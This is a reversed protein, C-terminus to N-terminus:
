LIRGVVLFQLGLLFLLLELILVLDVPDDALVILSDALLQLLEALVHLSGLIGRFLQPVINPLYALVVILCEILDAAVSLIFDIFDVLLVHGILRLHLVHRELRLGFELKGLIFMLVELTINFFELSILLLLANLNGSLSLYKPRKLLLDTVLGGLDGGLILQYTVSLFLDILQLLLRLLEFLELKHEVVFDLLELTIDCGSLHFDGTKLLLGV